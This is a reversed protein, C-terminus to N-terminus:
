QSVTNVIYNQEALCNIVDSFTQKSEKILHLGLLKLGEDMYM